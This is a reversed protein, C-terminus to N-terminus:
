KPSEEVWLKRAVNSMYQVHDDTILPSHKQVLAAPALVLTAVLRRPLYPRFVRRGSLVQISWFTIAEREGLTPGSGRRM